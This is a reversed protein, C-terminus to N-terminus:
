SSTAAWPRSCRISRRWCFVPSAPSRRRRLCLRRCLGTAGACRALGGHQSRLRRRAGDRRPAHSLRGLATGIIILAGIGIMFVRYLPLFLGAVEIAGSIPTESGSRIPGWILRFVDELVLGLGFTLLLTTVHRDPSHFVRQILVREVAYGIPLMLAPVLVLLLWFPVGLAALSLASSPASRTSSAM